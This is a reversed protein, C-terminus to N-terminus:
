SKVKPWLIEENDSFFPCIEVSRVKNFELEFTASMEESHITEFSFYDDIELDKEKIDNAKLLNLLEQKDLGVVKKGYLLLAESFIEIAYLRFAENKDFKYKIKEENYYFIKAFDLEKGVDNIKDPDSVIEKLRNQSIGFVVDDLGNGIKIEM